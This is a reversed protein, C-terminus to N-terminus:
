QDICIKKVEPVPGLIRIEVTWLLQVIKEWSHKSIGKYMNMDIIFVVLACSPLKSPIFFNSITACLKKQISQKNLSQSKTCAHVLVTFFCIGRLVKKLVFWITYRFHVTAIQLVHM